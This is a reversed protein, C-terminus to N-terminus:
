RSRGSWASCGCALIRAWTTPFLFVAALFLLAVLALWMYLIRSSRRFSQLFIVSAFGIVGVIILAWLWNSASAQLVSQIEKVGEVSKALPELERARESANSAASSVGWAVGVWPLAAIIVGWSNRWSRLRRDRKFDYHESYVVDIVANSLAYNSHYLAASLLSLAAAAVSIQLMRLVGYPPELYSLYIEHMQGVMALLAFVALGSLLLVPHVVGAFQGLPLWIHQDIFRQIEYLRNRM